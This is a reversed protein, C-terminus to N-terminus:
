GYCKKKLKVQMGKLLLLHELFCSEKPVLDSDDKKCKQDAVKAKHASTSQKTRSRNNLPCFYQIHGVEKCKLCKLCM